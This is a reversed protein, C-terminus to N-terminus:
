LRAIYEELNADASLNFRRRLRQKTKHVSDVSIGLMSAMQRTTLQLRTLAAMRQEAVTIGAATNKIRQFFLPFIKEFLSKFKNWDDETLITQQSLESILQQEEISITRNNLQQELKEVMNTKEIINETFMKLQAKASEIEQQIRLNEQQIRLNEQRTLEQQYKVKLRQRNILLLAIVALFLIGAIIFNRQQAQEEKERQLRRINYSNVEENLRLKSISISSQYITREVSDHLKTYKGAYYYASDTNGASKFIESATNYANQLYNASPWKKLLGFAERVQLLANATNGLALNTKAAWQLSNAANDYIGKKKSISYDMIFLPLATTYKGQAYYIQAMNGSIIGIWPPNNVKKEAELAKNYYVFASDYQGLRHYALAITNSCTMTYADKLEGGSANVVSIAKQSYKICKDYERVRWLMEGLIAYHGFPAVLNIKDYMEASNMMYMIALDATEDFVYMGGGYRGSVMATLYDDNTEYALLMAKSFLKKVEIKIQEKKYPGIENSPRSFYILMGAQVCYYRALFYNGKAESQKSLQTLFNFASASDFQLLLSNLKIVVENKKDGPDALKKAWENIALGHTQCISSHHIGIFSLILLLTICKV